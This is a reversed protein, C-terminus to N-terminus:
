RNKWDKGIIACEMCFHVNDPADETIEFLRNQIHLVSDELWLYFTTGQRTVLNWVPEGKVVM